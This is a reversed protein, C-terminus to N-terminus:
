KKAAAKFVGVIRLYDYIRLYVINREQDNQFHFMLQKKEKKANGRKINSM